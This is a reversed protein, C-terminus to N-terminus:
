AAAVAAVTKATKWITVGFGVAKSVANKLSFNFALTKYLYNNLFLCGAFVLVEALEIALLSNSSIIGVIIKGFMFVLIWILPFFANIFFLKIFKFGFHQTPLFFNFAIILPLGALFAILIVIRAVIKVLFPIGFVLLILLYLLSLIPQVAYITEVISNVSIQENLMSTWFYRTLINALELILLALALSLNTFLIILFINWVQKKAMIRKRVDIASFMLLYGAYAVVVIFVVGALYNMKLWYPAIASADFSIISLETLLTEFQFVPGHLKVMNYQISKDSLCPFWTTPNYWKTNECSPPDEILDLANSIPIVLLILLLPILKKYTM